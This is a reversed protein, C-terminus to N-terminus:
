QAMDLWAPVGSDYCLMPRGGVAYAAAINNAHNLHSKIAVAGIANMNFTNGGAQLTHALVVQVCMGSTPATIGGVNPISGSIANNAGGESAIYNVKTPSSSGITGNADQVTYNTFTTTFLPAVSLSYSPYKAMRIDVTSNTVDSSVEADILAAAAPNLNGGVALGDIIISAQASNVVMYDTARYTANATSYFMNGGTLRLIFPANTGNVWVFYGCVAIGTADVCEPDGANSTWTEFQCEVCEFMGGTSASDQYFGKQNYEIDMSHGYVQVYAANKMAIANAIFRGGFFVENSCCNSSSPVYWGVGNGSWQDDYYSISYCNNGCMVGYGFARMYMSRLVVDHGQLGSPGLVAAPDGGLVIGATATGYGPGYLACSSMSSIEHTIASGTDGKIFIAGATVGLTISTGMGACQLNVSRPLTTAAYVTFSGPLVGVTGGGATIAGQAAEAMGATATSIQWAGSHTAACTLIIVGSSQGSTGAGGSILCAEATGTGGSVRLYHYTDTGNVGAPVPTLTVPNNGIVLSGGPTQPSFTYTGALFPTGNVNALNVGLASEVAKVEATLANHHWATMNGSVTARNAHGAAVTGDFGRVVTLPSIATVQMIESDITLLMYPVMGTASTVTLSTASATMASSLATQIRNVAVALNADTAIAGPYQATQGALAGASLLFLVLKM